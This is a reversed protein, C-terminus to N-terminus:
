FRVNGGGPPPGGYKIARIKPRLDDTISLVLSMALRLQEAFQDSGTVLLNAQCQIEGDRDDRTVSGFPLRFGADLLLRLLAALRDDPLAVPGEHPVEEVEVSVITLNQMSEDYYLRLNTPGFGMHFSGDPFRAYRLKHEDFHAQVWGYVQEAGYTSV